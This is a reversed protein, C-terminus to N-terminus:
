SKPRAQMAMAVLAGILIAPFLQGTIAEATALSRAFPHVPTIDSGVTTLMAFSFYTVKASLQDLDAPPSAFHLSGPHFQELFQFASAWAMGLLLYACVGGQIRSWTVPGARFMVVLVVRIYLLLTITVLVSGCLHLFLTPHVRGAALVVATTSVAVILSVKFFSGGKIVSAGYIMLVVVALDMFIRMSIGADRLPTVVFILITVSITVLTLGLDGSWFDSMELQLFSRQPRNPESAVTRAEATRNSLGNREEPFGASENNM